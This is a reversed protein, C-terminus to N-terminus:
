DAYSFRYVMVPVSPDVAGPGLNKVATVKIKKGSHEALYTKLMKMKAPQMIALMDKRRALQQLTDANTLGWKALFDNWPATNSEWGGVPLANSPYDWSEFEFADMGGYLVTASRAFIFLEDPHNEAYERAAALTPSQAQRSLPRIAKLYFAGGIALCLVGVFAPVAIRLKGRLHGAEREDAKKFHAASRAASPGAQVCVCLAFLASVILPLVVHTRVRARMILVACDVALMLVCGLALARAGRDCGIDSMCAWAFAGTLVVLALLLYTLKGHLSSILNSINFHSVSKSLKEFFETGFVDNDAFMWNYLVDVDNDTLSSDVAEVEDASLDPYDLSARGADLYETFGEWGPTSDYAVQGAVACAAICVLVVAGRSISAVNRNRILVWFAFPAFVALAALASEPRLSYGYAVLLMGAADSARVSRVRDFAAQKLILTLGASFALFAVITFTFFLTAMFELLALVLAMVACLPSSLRSRLASTYAVAFSVAILGLMVLPYWPMQPLVHYLAYFSGSVLILSYPMLYNSSAGLFRSSAYLIQTNDDPAMPYYIGCVVALLAVFAVSALLCVVPLAASDRFGRQGSHKASEEIRDAADVSLTESAM